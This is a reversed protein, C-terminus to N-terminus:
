PKIIESTFYVKFQEALYTQGKINPLLKNQMLDLQSINKAHVDDAMVQYFDFLYVSDQTTLERSAQIYSKMKVNDEVSTTPNPTRILVETDDSSVIAEVIAQYNAAYEKVPIKWAGLADNLGASIVVLDPAHKIVDTEIRNKMHSVTNANMGANIIKVQDPYNKNFWKALLGVHNLNGDPLSDDSTVYDGLFVITVPQGSTLKTSFSSPMAQTEVTKTHLADEKSLQISNLNKEGSIVIFILAILLIYILKKLM